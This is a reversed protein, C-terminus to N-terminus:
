IKWNICLSKIKHCVKQLSGNPIALLIQVDAGLKYGNDQRNTLLWAFKEQDDENLIDIRDIILFKRGPGMRELQAVWVPKDNSLSGLDFPTITAPIVVAGGIERPDLGEVIISHKSNNNLVELFKAKSQENMM